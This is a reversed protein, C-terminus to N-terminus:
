AEKEQETEPAPEEKPEEKREKKKEKRPKVNITEELDKPVIYSPINVVKGNVLVKKHVILQRAERVSKAIKKDYLITQLRRKLYDKKNLSLIDAISAVNLGIRKLTDYLAQKEKEDASILKKAKARIQSIKSEAKWIEKKNKLGFEKKIDAEEAIREKDFPRKPKSYQKHKRIM